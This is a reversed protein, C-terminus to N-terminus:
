RGWPVTNPHEPHYASNRSRTSDYPISPFLSCRDAPEATGTNKSARGKIPGTWRGQHTYQRQLWYQSPSTSSTWGVIITRQPSCCLWGKPGDRWCLFHNSLSMSISRMPIGHIGQPTFTRYLSWFIMAEGAAWITALQTCNLPWISRRPMRWSKFMDSARAVALGCIYVMKAHKIHTRNSLMIYRTSGLRNSHYKVDSLNPIALWM